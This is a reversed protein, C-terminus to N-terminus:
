VQKHFSNFIMGTANLAAFFLLWGLMFVIDGSEHFYPASSSATYTICEQTTTAVQECTTWSSPFADDPM